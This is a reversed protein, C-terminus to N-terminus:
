ARTLMSIEVVGVNNVFNEEPSGSNNWDQPNNISSYVDTKGAPFTIEEGISYIRGNVMFIGCGICSNKRLPYKDKPLSNTPDDLGVRIDIKRPDEVGNKHKFVLTYTGKADFKIIAPRPLNLSTLKQFGLNEETWKNPEMLFTDMVVWQVDEKSSGGIRNMGASNIAANWKKEELDILQEPTLIAGNAVADRLERLDDATAKAKNETNQLEIEYIVRKDEPVSFYALPNLNRGTKEIWLAEPVLSLAQIVIMIIAFLYALRPGISGGIKFVKKLLLAVVTLLIIAPFAAPNERFSFFGLVTLVSTAILLVTMAAEGYLKFFKELGEALKPDKKLVELGVGGYALNLIWSPRTAVIPILLTLVLAFLINVGKFGALNCGFGILVLLLFGIVSRWGALYLENLREHAYRRAAQGTASSAFLILLGLTALRSVMGAGAPKPPAPPTPPTSKKNDDGGKKGTNTNDKAM